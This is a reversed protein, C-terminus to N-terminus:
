CGTDTGGAEVKMLGLIQNYYGIRGNVKDTAGGNCEVAGNIRDITSGFGSKFVTHPASSAGDASIMWFWLGTRWLNSPQIALAPQNLFDIGLYDGAAKYNFNWSLQMSGRGYYQNEGAPCGYAKTADCYVGRNAAIEETFQFNGTEWKANALFMAIERKAWTEDVDGGFAKFAGAAEVFGDYTYQASNGTIANFTARDILEGIGSVSRTGDDPILEINDVFLEGEVGKPIVWSLVLVEEPFLVLQNAALGKEEDAEIGWTQAMEDWFFEFTTYEASNVPVTEEHANWCAVVAEPDCWGGATDPITGGVQPLFLANSVSGAVNFRIGMSRAMDGIIGAPSISLSVSKGSDGDAGASNYLVTNGSGDDRLEWSQTGAGDYGQWHELDIADELADALPAGNLPPAGGLAPTDAPNGTEGPTNTADTMEPALPAGTQQNIFQSEGQSDSANDETGSDCAALAGLAFLSSILLLPRNM